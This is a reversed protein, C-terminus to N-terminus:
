KSQLSWGPMLNVSIGGYIAHRTYVASLSAWQIPDVVLGCGYNFYHYRRHVDFDHYMTASYEGNVEINVTSADTVGASTHIHGVLPMIRLWPLVPIQYGLSISTVSTDNYYNPTVHNDYKHEPSAAIFDLYVGYASLGAGFSFDKYNCGIGAMGLNFGLSYREKNSAFDFWQANAGMAVFVLAAVIICKKM